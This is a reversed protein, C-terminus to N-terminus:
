LVSDGRKKTRLDMADKVEYVFIKGETGYTRDLISEIVSDAVPDCVVTMITVNESFEEKVTGTGRDFEM